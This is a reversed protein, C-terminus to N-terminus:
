SFNFLLNTLYKVLIPSSEGNYSLNYIQLLFAYGNPHIILIIQNSKCAFWLNTIQLLSTKKM